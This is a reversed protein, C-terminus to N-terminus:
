PAAAQVPPLAADFSNDGAKVECDLSVDQLSPDRTLEPVLFTVRNMGVLTKVEYTGDPQIPASRATADRRLHNSPDFRINGKAIPKGRLTVTGKVTAEETSTDVPPKGEGCGLVVSLFGAAALAATGRISSSRTM